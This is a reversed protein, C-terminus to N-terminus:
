IRGKLLNSILNNMIQENHLKNYIICMFICMIHIYANSITMQMHTDVLIYV